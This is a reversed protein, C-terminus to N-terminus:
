VLPIMAAIMVKRFVFALAVCLPAQASAGHRILRATAFVCCDGIATVGSARTQRTFSLSLITRSSGAANNASGPTSGVAIRAKASKSCRDGFRASPRRM